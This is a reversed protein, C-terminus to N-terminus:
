HLFLSERNGGGFFGAFAVFVNLAAWNPSSAAILTFASVLFISALWVNRRGLNDAVLGISIAGLLLGAYLSASLLTPKDPGFEYSAQPGVLSISVLLM